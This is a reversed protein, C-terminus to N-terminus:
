LIINEDSSDELSRKADVIKVGTVNGSGVAPWFADGSLRHHQPQEKDKPSQM